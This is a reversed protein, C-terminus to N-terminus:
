IKAVAEEALALELGVVSSAGPVIADIVVVLAAFPTV